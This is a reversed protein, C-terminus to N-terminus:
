ADLGGALSLQCELVALAEDPLGLFRDLWTEGTPEIVAAGVLVGTNTGELRVGQRDHRQSCITETTLLTNVLLDPACYRLGPGFGVQFRFQACFQLELQGTAPQLTGNLRIPHIEVSLGPPLPLGLFRATRGSLAPIATTESAFSLSIDGRDARQAEGAASGGRANYLFRPYRGIVLECGELTTLQCEAM